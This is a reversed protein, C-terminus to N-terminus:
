CSAKRIAFSRRSAARGAQVHITPIPALSIGMNLVADLQVPFYKKDLLRRSESLLGDNRRKSVSKHSQNEISLINKQTMFSEQTLRDSQRCMRTNNSPLRSQRALPSSITAYTAYVSVAPRTYVARRDGRNVNRAVFGWGRGRGWCALPPSSIAAPRLTNQTPPPMTARTDVIKALNSAQPQQRVARLYPRNM